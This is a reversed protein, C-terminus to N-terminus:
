GPRLRSVTRNLQLFHPRLLDPRAAAAALFFAASSFDGPVVIHVGQPTQMGAITVARDDRQIEVGMAVLMRETHDRTPVPEVVTTKGRAFLGAILLASKVQASAVPLEYHIGTLRATEVRLPLTNEASTTISAGMNALPGTVRKMPRRRLSDDGDITCPIGLGTTLGCLLRATTGSNGADLRADAPAVGGTVRIAGTDDSEISTGLERLCRMTSDVDAARAIGEITQGDRAIAGLILARHSISKDGPVSLEGRLSQTHPVAPTM